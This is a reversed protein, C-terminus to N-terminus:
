GQEEEEGAEAKRGIVEPEGAPAPTVEEVVEAVPSCTVATIDPDTVLTAESPLEIQGATIQENLRLNKVNVYIKEPIATVPCEIELEHLVLEVVGGEQAGAAQGRIEVPVTLTVREGESVRVFDLHIVTSGYVDWQLESILAKENLAGTLEVLRSGHRVAASLQEAPVALSIAEGGHGYLIAPIQGQRRLRRNDRKGRQSRIGVTLTEAM